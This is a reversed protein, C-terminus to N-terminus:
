EPEKRRHHLPRQVQRMVDHGATVSCGIVKINEQLSWTSVDYVEVEPISHHVLFVTDNLVTVGYVPEKGKSM